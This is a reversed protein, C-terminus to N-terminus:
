LAALPQSLLLFGGGGLLLSDGLDDGLDSGSELLSCEIQM